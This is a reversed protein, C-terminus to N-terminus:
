EHERVQQARTHAHTRTHTHTPPVMTCTCAHTRHPLSRRRQPSSLLEHVCVFSELLPCSRIIADLRVDSSAIKCCGEIHISRVQLVARTRTHARSSHQVECARVRGERLGYRPAWPPPLFRRSRIICCRPVGSLDSRSLWWVHVLACMAILWVRVIM